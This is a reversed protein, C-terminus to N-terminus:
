RALTGGAKARGASPTRLTPTGGSKAWRIYPGQLIAGAIIFLLVAPLVLKQTPFDTSAIMLAVGPHRSASALALVARDDPNPGGLLHGAILGVVVFVAFAALTGNGVLSMMAPWATVIIALTGLALLLTALLALPRAIRGALAPLVARIVMGLALPALLTGLVIKAVPVWALQLPVGFVREVVELMVPVFVIAVLGALVLLGHVYSAGGGAKFQKKPLFPPVPSLALAVLAIKVAPDLAFFYALAVAVIPMVVNMALLSRLLLSPRRLIALTDEVTAGLGLAVVTLVVSGKVILPILTAMEM